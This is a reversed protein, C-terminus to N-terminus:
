IIKFIDYRGSLHVATGIPIYVSSFWTGPQYAAGYTCRKSHSGHRTLWMLVLWYVLFWDCCLFLPLTFLTYGALRCNLAAAELICLMAMVQAPKAKSAEANTKKTDRANPYPLADVLNQM